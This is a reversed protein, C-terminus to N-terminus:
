ESQEERVGHGLHRGGRWQPENQGVGIEVLSGGAMQHARGKTQHRTTPLM